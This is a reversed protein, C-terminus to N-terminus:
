KRHGKAKNKHYRIKQRERDVRLRREERTEGLVLEVGNTEIPPANGGEGHQPEQITYGMSEAIQLQGLSPAPVHPEQLTTGLDYQGAIDFGRPATLDFDLPETAWSSTSSLAQSSVEKEKRKKERHKASIARRKVRNQCSKCDEFPCLEKDKAKMTERVNIGNECIWEDRAEDYRAKECRIRGIEETKDCWYEKNTVQCM